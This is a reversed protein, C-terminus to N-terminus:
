FKAPRAKKIPVAGVEDSVPHGAEILTAVKARVGGPREKFIKRIRTDVSGFRLKIISTVPEAVGSPIVVLMLVATIRFIM